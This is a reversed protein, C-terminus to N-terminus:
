SRDRWNRLIGRVYQLAGSPGGRLYSHAAAIDIAEILDDIRHIRLISALSAATSSCSALGKENWHEVISNLVIERSKSLERAHALYALLQEAQEMRAADVELASPLKSDSLRRPGKGLNCDVCATVLNSSDDSGGECQPEIHDVHLPKSQPDAGCYVCRFGDRKFIEFRASKSLAM